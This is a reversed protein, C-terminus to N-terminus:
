AVGACRTLGVAIIAGIPHNISNKCHHTDDRAQTEGQVPNAASNWDSNHRSHGAQELFRAGKFRVLAVLRPETRDPIAM